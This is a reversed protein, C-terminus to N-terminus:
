YKAGACTYINEQTNANIYANGIDSTMVDLNNADAITM